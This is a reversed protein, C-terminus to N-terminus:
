SRSRMFLQTIYYTKGQRWIGVGTQTYNSQLINARHGPSQMWGTVALKVPDPANTSQFLNEGLRDYQIGAAAVRKAPTSGDPGTHSFFGATAMKRSYDRAVAALQPNNQLQSLGNRQRIQNIQQWVQTEIEAIAEPPRASVLPSRDGNLSSNPSPGLQPEVTVVACSGLFLILLPLTMTLPQSLLHLLPKALKQFLM